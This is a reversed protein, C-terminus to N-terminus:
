KSQKSGFLIILPSSGKKPPPSTTGLCAPKPLGKTDRLIVDWDHSGQEKLLTGSQGWIYLELMRLTWSFPVWPLTDSHASAECECLVHGSIEEEAGCRRRLPSDTLGM